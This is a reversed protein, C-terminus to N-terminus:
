IRGYYKKDLFDFVEDAETLPAGSQVEKEANDIIRDIHNIGAFKDFMESSMIVLDSYGNKTVFIPEQKEHAMDSIATTNRLDRIPIITPM